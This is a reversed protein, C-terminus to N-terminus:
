NSVSSPVNGRDDIFIIQSNEILTTVTIVVLKKGGNDGLTEDSDWSIKYDNIEYNIKRIM